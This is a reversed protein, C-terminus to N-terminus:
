CDFGEEEATSERGDYWWIVCDDFLVGDTVARDQADILGLLCDGHVERTRAPLGSMLTAGGSTQTPYGGIGVPRCYDEGDGPGEIASVVVVTSAVLLIGAVMTMLAVRM